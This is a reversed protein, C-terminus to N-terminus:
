FVGLDKELKNIDGYDAKQELVWGSATAKKINEQIGSGFTRSFSPVYNPGYGGSKFTNIVYELVKEIRDLGYKDIAIQITKLNSKKNKPPSAPISEYYKNIINIISSKCDDDISLKDIRIKDPYVSPIGTTYGNEETALIYVGNKLTLIEKEQRLTPSYRDSRIYNNQHWHTIVIVGSEFVILFGKVILIKLDDDTAGIMNKIRKPNGVFGDDDANLALHMYLAQSSLPMDMFLDSSIFEKSFMRRAAM